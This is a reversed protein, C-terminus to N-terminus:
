TASLETITVWALTADSKQRVKMAHSYTTAPSPAIMNFTTEESTGALWEKFTYDPGGTWEFVEISLTETKRVTSDSDISELTSTYAQATPM